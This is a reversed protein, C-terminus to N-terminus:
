MVDDILKRLIETALVEIKREPIKKKAYEM